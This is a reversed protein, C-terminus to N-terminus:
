TPELAVEPESLHCMVVQAMVMAKTTYIWQLSGLPGDRYLILFVVLGVLVPPLGM